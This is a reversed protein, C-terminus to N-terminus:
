EERDKAVNKTKLYLIISFPVVVYPMTSFFYLAILYIGNSSKSKLSLSNFQINLGWHGPSLKGISLNHISNIYTHEFNNLKITTNESTDSIALHLIGNKSDYLDNISKNSNTTMVYRESSLINPSSSELLPTINGIFTYNDQDGNNPYGIRFKSGNNFINNDIFFNSTVIVKYGNFDLSIGTANTKFGVYDWGDIGANKYPIKISNSGYVFYAINSGVLIIDAAKTNQSNSSYWLINQINANKIKKFLILHYQNSFSNNLNYCMHENGNLYTQTFSGNISPISINSYQSTNSNLPLIRTYNNVVPFNSYELSLNFLSSDLIQYYGSQTVDRPLISLNLNIYGNNLTRYFGFSRSNPFITVNNKSVTYTVNNVSMVFDGGSKDSSPFFTGLPVNSLKSNSVNSYEQNFIIVLPTSILIIAILIVIMKNTFSRPLKITPLSNIKTSEKKNIHNKLDNSKNDKNISILFIIVGVVSTMILSNLITIFYELQPATKIFLYNFHFVYYGFYFIGQQYGTGMIFNSFLAEIFIPINLILIKSFLHHSNGMEMIALVTLPLLWLYPDFGASASTYLFILLLIYLSTYIGFKFKYLLIPLFIALCVLYLIYYNFPISLFFQFGDIFSSSLGNGNLNSIYSINTGRFLVIDLVIFIFGIIISSLFLDIKNKRSKAFIILTPIFLIADYTTLIAIFLPIIYVMTRGITRGRSDHELLFLTLTSFFVPIIDWQMWILTIYILAPNLIVFIFIQFKRKNFFYSLIFATGVSFTLLIFKMTLYAVDMNYGSKLYFFYSPIWALMYFPGGPWGVGAFPLKFSYFHSSIWLVTIFNSQDYFPLITFALLLASIGLIVMYKPLERLKPSIEFQENKSKSVFRAFKNNKM